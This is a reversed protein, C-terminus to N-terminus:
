QERLLVKVPILTATTSQWRGVACCRENSYVAVDGDGHSVPHQATELRINQGQCLRRAQDTDIFVVPLGAVAWELPLLTLSAPRQNELPMALDATFPGVELRRLTRVYAGCGLRQGLDRALSRIYTGKGCRINLRLNPYDYNLLDIVDVRVPRPTLFMTKGQRALQHARKGRVHIASFDPPVQDHVGVLSRLEAEVTASTPPEVGTVPVVEGNADDTSSVAGLGFDAVYHKDMRQVYEVLRTAPGVCIVLVGSALPDLTGAHGVRTGRRFWRQVCNVAVRSTIGSPKDIVLLGTPKDQTVEAFELSMTNGNPEGAPLVMGSDYHNATGQCHQGFIDVIIM